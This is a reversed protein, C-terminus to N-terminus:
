AAPVDYGSYPTGIYPFQDLFQRVPPFTGDEIVNAAGDPTFTPDVLPITIGAVARLEITVVDDTLKRGNPYGTADGGVLGLRNPNPNPPIAVNLRLMDAKTPGTFNQFGAIGVEKPIGTLLIANLDKRDQTYAKLNPFTNRPYLVPLLKALEPQNVYQEFDADQAPTKSNWENKRALPVIVENFLPNGLRSVQRWDGSSHRRGQARYLGTQRSASGWVGIVSKPSLPDRPTSGDATLDKIPVQLVISHVNVKEIADVGTGKPTSILHLDQFPRLTGLDFVSGLDVFFSEARQGAFVKNGNGLDKVARAALAAYNPTSRPGVNCPPCPIGSVKFEESYRLQGRRSSRRKLKTVTYFQRRNWTNDDLRTIPGTNYLFTNQNFNKSEFRFQYKVEAIGDGNNDIHMEYLVDSGFEYFNPGGAPAEVPVYSTIITVTDNETVWAYVDTNDAVPDKLIGPAERHSSM